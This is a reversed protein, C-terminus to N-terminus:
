CLALFRPVLSSHPEHMLISYFEQPCNCCNDECLMEVFLVSHIHNVISSVTRRVYLEEVLMISSNTACVTDVWRLSEM